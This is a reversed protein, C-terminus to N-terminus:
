RITTTIYLKTMSNVITIVNEIVVSRRDQGVSVSVDKSDFDSIAGMSQLEERNKVLDLWLSTRGIDNNQIRGLYRTNFVYADDNALKDIIRITQNYRFLASTNETFSTLTNVDDLVRIDGNANHLVFNGSDLLTSLQAQSFSVDVDYEGDYFANQCSVNVACACQLGTVWYVLDAKYPYTINNGTGSMDDICKNKVSICGMYNASVYDFLVLQFKIGLEDRLRKNFALALAKVTSDDTALGMTNFTYNEILDFYAQYDTGTVTNNTGLTFSTGATVSLTASTDFDVYDNNVLDAASAVTQEDVLTTGYYISVDFLSDDDVNAAIVIKLNNGGIGAYKATGYTCTAKSGNGNLRYAYLVSANRFIERLPKMSDDDSTVGFIKFCKNNFDESTIKIICGDQGWDTQIPVTCVGRDSANLNTIALSSVNIYTGPLSKNQTVWSGGGLSM